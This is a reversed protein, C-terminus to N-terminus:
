VIQNNDKFKILKRQFIKKVVDSYYTDLVVM